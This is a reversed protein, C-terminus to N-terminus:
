NGKDSLILGLGVVAIGMGLYFLGQAIVIGDHFDLHPFIRLWDGLAVLGGIAALVGGILTLSSGGEKM